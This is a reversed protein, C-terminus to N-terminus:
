RHMGSGDGGACRPTQHIAAGKEWQAPTKASISLAHVPINSSEGRVADNVLRHRDIISKGDFLSSVVLLKFHSEADPGGGHSASENVLEVHVPSLAANINAVMAKALPGSQSTSAAASM